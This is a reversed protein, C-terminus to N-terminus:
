GGLIMRFVADICVTGFVQDNIPGLEDLLKRLEELIKQTQEGISYQSDLM